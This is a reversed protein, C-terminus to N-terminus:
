EVIGPFHNPANADATVKREMIRFGGLQKVLRYHSELYPEMLLGGTPHFTSASFLSTGAGSQFSTDWVVYRVKRRELTHIVEQFQSETNYNYILLSYRTPNTTGSLFYYMPCYPYAFIEEGPVTHEDLFALVPDPKFMAVPGVRTAVPHASLAIFLNLTALVGASVALIQLSLDAIRVRYESLFYTCLVVLIPSGAVLHGIDLRHIESFWIAWGCFWYLLIKPRLNARGRPIGLIPALAPLAAVFLNPILLLVAMPILWRIGHIPVAWNAWYHFIGLGYPISNVVGYHRSPWLVNMYVLDWLAARSWFYLLTLVAVSFYGTALLALSRLLGPRRRQQIWLWLLFAFFVLMGKPQLICTTVGSIAGAAFLLINRRTDHWLTISVVALLAFFNSDVHHNVMPWTATFYVSVLLVAPLAAYKRCVQCSLFYLSLVTGLSTVFLCAREAFFTVGFLKFFLALWYFTGPGMVEFFDRAFVQGHVIRVAGSVLTGEDFGSWDLRMFPLLYIAACVLFLCYRLYPERFWRFEPDPSHPAPVASGEREELAVHPPEQCKDQHQDQVSVGM